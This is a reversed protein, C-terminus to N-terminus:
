ISCPLLHELLPLSKVQIIVLVTSALFVFVANYDRLM